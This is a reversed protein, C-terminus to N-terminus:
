QWQYNISTQVAAVRIHGITLWDFSAIFDNWERVVTFHFILQHHYGFITIESYIVQNNYIHLKSESHTKTGSSCSPVSARKRTFVSSTLRIFM